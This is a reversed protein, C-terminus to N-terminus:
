RAFSGGGAELAGLRAARTAVDRFGPSAAQLELWVALARATEGVNELLAALRYLVPLRVADAGAEDAARELWEVAQRARGRCEHLDALALAAEFRCTPDRFAHEFAEIAEEVMGGAQYTRAVALHEWGHIGLDRLATERVQDLAAELGATEPAATAGGGADGAAPRRAPGPGPMAALRNLLETLDVEDGDGALGPPDVDDLVQVGGAGAAEAGALGARTAAEDGWPRESVDGGAEDERGREDEGVAVGEDDEDDEDDEYDYDEDEGGDEEGGGEEDDAFAEFAIDDTGSAVVGAAGAEGARVDGAEASGPSAAYVGTAAGQARQGSEGGPVTWGADGGPESSGPVAPEEDIGLLPQVCAALAADPDPEGCQVLVRRLRARHREDDPDRALLDEAVVRAEQPHGAALYADVLATQVWVLEAEFGGDVAVEVARLLAPLHAPARELFAQLVRWAAALDGGAAALNVLAETCLYGADASRPALRAGLAAIASPAAADVRLWRLLTERALDFLGSRLECEALLALLPADDGVSQHPLARRALELDDLDLALRALLVRSDRDAPDITTVEALLQVAHAAQGREVLRAAQDRLRQAAREPARRALARAADLAAEVDQPDLDAIRILVEALGDADQRRRRLGAVTTLCNRADVVLRQALCAEALGLLAAEEAPRLKLVKKYFGAARAYFGERLYADAVRMFLPIARDSAGARVYLDGLTNASALDGPHQEVLRAYEALAADLRGQRLLKEARRLADDRDASV